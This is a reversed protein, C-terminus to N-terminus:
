GEMSPRRRWYLCHGTGWNYTALSDPFSQDPVSAIRQTMSNLPLPCTNHPPDTEHDLSGNHEPDRTTGEHDGTPPPITSPQIPQSTGIPFSAELEDWDWVDIESDPYKQKNGALTDQTLEQNVKTLDQRISPPHGTRPATEDAPKTVTTAPPDPIYRTHNTCFVASVSLYIKGRM